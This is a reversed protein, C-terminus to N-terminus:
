FLEQGDHKKEKAWEKKLIFLKQMQGLNLGVIFDKRIKKRIEEPTKTTESLEKITSIKDYFNKNIDLDELQVAETSKSYRGPAKNNIPNEMKIAEMEALALNNGNQFKEIIISYIDDFWDSKSKHVCLRSSFNTSKGVYLLKGEKDYHRYLCFKKM